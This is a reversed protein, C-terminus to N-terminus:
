TTLVGPQEELLGLNLEWFGGPSVYNDTVTTGSFGIDEKSLACVTCVHFLFMCASLVGICM